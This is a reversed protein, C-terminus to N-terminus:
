LLEYELLGKGGPRLHTRNPKEHFFTLNISLMSPEQEQAKFNLYFVGAKDAKVLQKFYPEEGLILENDFEGKVFNDYHQVYSFTPKSQDCKRITVEIFGAQSNEVLFNLDEGNHLSFPYEHDFPLFM